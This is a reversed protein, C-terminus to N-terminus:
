LKPQEQKFLNPTITLQVYLFQSFKDQTVGQLTKLSETPIFFLYGAEFNVFDSHKYKLILDNEFGLNKDTLTSSNTQALQFIHATNRVSLTKSLKIDLYAFYNALGGQKTHNEYNTFYDINGFFAHRARFLGDFLNDVTQDTGVKKNGSLYSLGIGPTISKFKYSVDLDALYASINKNNSNIGYQYYFNVQVNLSDTSYKSFIGSTHKYLIKNTANNETVGTSLHILSYQFSNTPKINYWVYNLNKIRDSPYYYNKADTQLSNWTSGFHSTSKDKKYKFILADLASGNHNWNRNSIISNNDYKIEQRGVSAKLNNLLKFEAYAEFLDISADNGNDSALTLRQADGWTRVDQVSTKILLDQTEYLFNIRSRQAIHFAATDTTKALKQYGNRAEFRNRYQADIKFQAFATNSVLFGILLTSVLLFNNKKM